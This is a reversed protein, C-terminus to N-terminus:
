EKYGLKTASQKLIADIQHYTLDPHIDSLFFCDWNLMNTLYSESIKAITEYAGDFPNISEGTIESISKAIEDALQYIQESFIEEDLEKIKQNYYIDYNKPKKVEIYPIKM